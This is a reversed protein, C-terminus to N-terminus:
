IGGATALPGCSAPIEKIKLKHRKAQILMESAFEMGQSVLNLEKLKECNIARFGCHADSVNVRYLLNFILTLVSNGLKNLLSMSGAAMNGKFRNGIIMDYDKLLNLFMPIENFDYTNDADILIVNKGNVHKFAEHYANGYGKKDHRVIKIGFNKILNYTNDDSSDSVIIEGNINHEQFISKIKNICSLITREENRSPLIISVDM